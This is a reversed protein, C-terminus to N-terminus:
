SYGDRSIRAKRKSINAQRVLEKENGRQEETLKELIDFFQPIWLKADVKGYTEHKNQSIIEDFIAITESNASFIREVDVIGAFDLNAIVVEEGHKLLFHFLNQNMDKLVSTEEESMKYVKQHYSAPNPNAMILKTFINQNLSVISPKSAITESDECVFIVVCNKSKMRELFNLLDDGIADIVNQAEKIVLISPSNDLEQEIRGLLYYFISMLIGSQSKAETLDFAMIKDKWNIESYSDFINKLEDSNWIALADFIDPFDQQSFENIVQSFSTIRNDLVNRIKSEVMALQENSAVPKTFTALKKIFNSLFGLVSQDGGNQINFPSLHLYSPNDKDHCSLDYYNGDLASILCKAKQDFDFYFIRNKFRRAQTILFNTLVTRGSNNQGIILCHPNSNGHFNFFYPTNIVTKIVCVAAGWQNGLFQGAPLSQLSSFGAIRAVNIPKQRRLFAFNAPMQSWFCHELFVDERVFAMGMESYRSSFKKIDQKLGEQSHNILMVTTQLKGFSKQSNELLDESFFDALGSIQRFEEDNSVKLIYDQHEMDALDKKDCGFDFSQSIIFEAPLQLIKDLAVSNLEFYEKLSFIAAFNKFNEGIVEIERDGFFIHNTLLSESIDCPILPYKEDCLNCIKGFFSIPDSYLVGGLEGIGLLKAGYDEIASLINKVVSNLKQNSQILSKRYFSKSARISFSAAFVAAPSRSSTTNAVIISIFLENVYHSDLGNKKSWLENFEQSFFEEFVGGPNINKKRRVTTFWFAFNGDSANDAVAMRIAERLSVIESAAFSNSLGAVRIVQMLEGNKTLITNSDYHCAYPLFDSDIVNKKGSSFIKKFNSQQQGSSETTM